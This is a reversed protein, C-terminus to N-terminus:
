YFVGVHKCTVCTVMLVYLVIWVIAMNLCCFLKETDLRAGFGIPARLTGIRGADLSRSKAALEPLHEHYKLTQFVTESHKHKSSVDHELREYYPFLGVCGFLFM